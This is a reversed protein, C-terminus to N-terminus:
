HLYVRKISEIGLSNKLSVVYLQPALKETSFDIINEGQVFQLNSESIVRGQLNMLLVSYKEAQNVTIALKGKSLTTISNTKNKEKPQAIATAERLAVPDRMWDIVDVSSVIRVDPLTLAYAIFEEVIARRDLYNPISPFGDSYYPSDTYFDSHIVYHMPSRNGNYMKDLTHKLIALCEDKNLKYTHWLNYDVGDAKGGTQWTVTQKIRDRLGITTGYEECLDDTPAQFMYPPMEWLGSHKRIPLDLATNYWNQKISPSSNELTYPWYYTGADGIQDWHEHGSMVSCDYLFGENKLVSFVTDGYAGYPTRFGKIDERKMGVKDIFMQNCDQVEKTYEELSVRNTVKSNQWDIEVAGMHSMTHNSLEFGQKYLRRFLTTISDDQLAIGAIYFSASIPDGDFTEVKPEPTTPNQHSELLETFWTLGDIQGNDDSGLVIFQPVQSPQLNAPPMISPAITDLAYITLASLLLLLSKSIM